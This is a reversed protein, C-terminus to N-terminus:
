LTAAFKLVETAHGAPSVKEWIHRVIGEKDVLFTTRLVGTVPKGSM